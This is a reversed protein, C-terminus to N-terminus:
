YIKGFVKFVLDHMLQIFSFNNMKDVIVIYYNITTVRFKM